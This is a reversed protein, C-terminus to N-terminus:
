NVSHGNDSTLSTLWNQVQTALAGNTASSWLAEQQLAELARRYDAAACNWDGRLHYTRGREALIRAKLQYFLLAEDLVTLAEDFQGMDRLTMALNIRARVNFPNLDLALRYDQVAAPGQSLASYCNARNNYAQDLHPDIQIAQNYDAIAQRYHKQWFHILGRNNFHKAADPYQAILCDLLAEAQHYQRHQVALHVAQNLAAEGDEGPSLGPLSSAMGHSLNCVLQHQAVMPPEVCVHKQGRNPSFDTSNSYQPKHTNM